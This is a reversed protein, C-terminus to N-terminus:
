ETGAMRGTFSATISPSDPHELCLTKFRVLLNQPTQQIFQYWSQADQKIPLQLYSADFQVYNESAQYEIQECFRVKYDFDDLTSRM